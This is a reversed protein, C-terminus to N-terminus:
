KQNEQEMTVLEKEEVEPEITQISSGAEVRVERVADIGLERNKIRVSHLKAAELRFHKAENREFEGAYGGDLYVEGAIPVTLRVLVLQAQAQVAAVALLFIVVKNM